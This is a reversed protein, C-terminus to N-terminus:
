DFMHLVELIHKVRQEEKAQLKKKQSPTTALKKIAKFIKKM